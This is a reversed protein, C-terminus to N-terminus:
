ECSLIYENLYKICIEQICTVHWINKWARPVSCSIFCVLGKRMSCVVSVKMTLHESISNLETAWDHRVRQWGMFRMVGPRGTWWWNGSNMWVWTWRTPSAMWGDWGRNDGEGGEGLGEWCWPRKWHTLTKPESLIFNITMHLPMAKLYNKNPMEEQIRGRRNKGKGKGVEECWRGGLHWKM